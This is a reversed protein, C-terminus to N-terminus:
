ARMGLVRSGATHKVLVGDPTRGRFGGALEEARKKEEPSLRRPRSGDGNDNRPNEHALPGAHRLSRDHGPGESAGTEGSVDAVREADRNHNDVNSSM